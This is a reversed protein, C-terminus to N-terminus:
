TGVKIPNHNPITISHKGDKETSLRVHSGVQRTVEYGLIQLRKILEKGKVNQPIKM